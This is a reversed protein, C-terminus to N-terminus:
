YGEGKLDASVSGDGNINILIELAIGPPFNSSIEPSLQKSQQSGDSGVWHLQIPKDPYPIPGFHQQCLENNQVSACELQHGGPGVQVGVDRITAGTLNAIQIYGYKFHPEADMGTACASVLLSALILGMAKM